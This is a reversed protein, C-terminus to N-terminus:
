TIVVPLAPAGGRSNRPRATSIAAGACAAARSIAEMAGSAAAAEITKKALFYDGNHNNGIEAIFFVPDEPGIGKKGIRIRSPCKM